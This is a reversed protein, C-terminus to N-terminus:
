KNLQTGIHIPIYAMQWFYDYESTKLCQPHNQFSGIHMFQFTPFFQLIVQTNHNITIFNLSKFTNKLLYSKIKLKM